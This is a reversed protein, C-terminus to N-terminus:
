KDVMKPAVQWKTSVSATLRSAHKRVSDSYFSALQATRPLEPQSHSEDVKTLTPYIHSSSSVVRTSYFGIM